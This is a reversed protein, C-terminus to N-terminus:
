RSFRNFNPWIKGINGPPTVNNKYLTDVIRPRINSRVLKAPNGESKFVDQTAITNENYGTIETIKSVYRLGSTNDRSMQIIIQLGSAIQKKIIENDVNNVGMSVIALLRDIADRTDNAHLTTMSGDHGSNMAQLMDFAEGGRCEGVVIRDPRMRLTNIVLDRISVEGEGSLSKPRAELRCIHEGQLQLEAADEITVIRETPPIFNSCVNLLTTKGSSTGGSIVINARALVCAHIFDAGDQTLTGFRILDDVAYPDKKFKRVTLLPGDVAIPPFVANIRSGDILRSDCLPSAESIDRGVSNVIRKIIKALHNEDDFKCDVLLIHGNQEVFVMDYHNVMIESINDNQLLPKLPGFSDYMNELFENQNM